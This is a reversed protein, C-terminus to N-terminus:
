AGPATPHAANSTHKDLLWLVGGPLSVALGLVAWLVSLILASGPDAGIGGFLSVMGAERVGWGGLSIPLVSLLVAGGVLAVYVAYPEAIGLKHGIVYAAGIGVGASVAGLLALNAVDKPRELLRRMGRGTSRLLERVRAPLWDPTLRDVVAASLAVAVVLLAGVGLSTALPTSLRPWLSPLCALVMLGLIAVGSTREILVSTFALGKATGRRDLLWIRVADGGISTPLANSFFLGVFTWRLAPAAPLVGGLVTTLRHWRWSMIVAQLALLGCAVAADGLGVHALASTVQHRDIGRTVWM